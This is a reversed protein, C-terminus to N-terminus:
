ESRGEANPTGGRDLRGTRYFLDILQVEPLDSYQGGLRELAALSLEGGQQAYLVRGTGFVRLQIMDLSESFRWISLERRRVGEVTIDQNLENGVVRIEYRDAGELSSLDSLFGVVEDQPKSEDPLWLTPASRFPKLDEILTAFEHIERKLLRLAQTNPLVIEQDLLWEFTM